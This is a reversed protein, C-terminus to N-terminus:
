KGTLAMKKIAKIVIQELGLGGVSKLQPRKKLMDITDSDGVRRLACYAGIIYKEDEDVNSSAVLEIFEMISKKTAERQTNVDIEEDFSVMQNITMICQYAAQTNVDKRTYYELLDAVSNFAELTKLEELVGLTIGLFQINEISTDKLGKYGLRFYVCIIDAWSGLPVQNETNGIESWHFADKLTLLDYCISTDGIKVLPLIDEVNVEKGLFEKKRINEILRNM